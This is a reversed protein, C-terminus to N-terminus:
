QKEVGNVAESFGQIVRERERVCVCVSVCVGRRRCSRQGGYVKETVNDDPPCRPQFVKIATM